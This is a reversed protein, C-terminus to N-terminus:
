EFLYVRKVREPVSTIIEYPITRLISAMKSVPNRPGFVIVEDGEAVNLGTVNLMTMDMCISGITPVYKDGTLMKFRGKGLRRDIGDAYGIPIVAIRSPKSLVTERGYGVTEGAELDHIQSITTRLTAIPRLDDLGTSFGYLGIGLRVMEFQAEPFREIGASNLIHRLFPYGLRSSLQNAVNTFLDIQRHTFRDESPDESAALHSFLSKVYIEPHNQLFEIIRETEGLQFGLRHMGTDMKLHVPYSPLVLKRVTDSFM